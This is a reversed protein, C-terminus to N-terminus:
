EINRKIFEINKISVPDEGKLLAVYYSVWDLFYITKYLRAIKNNNSVYKNDLSIVKQKIKFNNILQHAANISKSNKNDLFPDELWIIFFSGSDGNWSEIENHNLEPFDNCFSIMKANEQLQNKFRLAVISTSGEVGYIVPIRKKLEHSISVISNNSCNLMRDVDRLERISEKLQAKIKRPATVLELRMLILIIISSIYGLACRPQLGLPTYIIFINFRSCLDNIKGSKSSIAIIKKTKKISKKFSSITEYTNGSYSLIIVLTKDSVWNPINSSRNIIVPVDINSSLMDKVLEGGIASGGMGCILVSDINKFVRNITKSNKKFWKSEIDFSEIIQNKFDNISKFMNGKDFRKRLLRFVKSNFSDFFDFKNKKIL